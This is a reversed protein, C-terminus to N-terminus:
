PANSGPPPQQEDANPPGAAPGAGNHASNLPAMPDDAWPYKTTDLPPLDEDPRIENVSRLGIMREYNYAQMRQLTDGQLRHRLDFRIWQNPPLIRNFAEQFREIDTLLTNRVFGLEQQQIGMGWSTTRDVIGLMHPPVRFILGSIESATFGRSEIWQSDKPTVAIPNFKTGETLVAPMNMQGIGQHTAMWQRALALIEDDGLAGQVELAGAPMSANAFWSGAALDGARALGFSNRCVEIPNLGTPAGPVSPGRIHFVDDLRVPKGDFRYELQGKQPGSRVRDVRVNDPHILKIQLPFLDADREIVEGYINGRLKLSFMGQTLWDQQTIECFPQEVVPSLDVEKKRDASGRYQRVPLTAVADALLSVSGYVAAVQLASKETVVTGAVPSSLMGNTPPTSNGWPATPDAGRRERRILSM